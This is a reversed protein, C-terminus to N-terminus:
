LATEPQFNYVLLERAVRRRDAFGGVNRTVTVEEINWGAFLKRVEEDDCYALIVRCGSRDLEMLEEALDRFCTNQFVKPGYEKFTRRSSTSYPPDAFITVDKGRHKKLSARFDLSELHARSLLDACNAVFALGPSRASAGGFPVNFHGKLNTRWLGNFGYRNLFLFSAAAEVDAMDANNYRTRLDYYAEKTTPMDSFFSYVEQHKDRITKLTNILKDNLDYLYAQKPSLSFFLAASGCFPEVYNEVSSGLLEALRPLLARKSGAWRLLSSTHQKAVPSFVDSELGGAIM